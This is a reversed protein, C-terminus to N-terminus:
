TARDATSLGICLMIFEAPRVPAVGIEVTMRGNDLDNQTITSRDARVFYAKEPKDGQLGGAQWHAQLFNEVANRVAAWLPEGNPEFATWGLGAQLCCELWCM